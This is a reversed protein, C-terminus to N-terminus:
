KGFIENVADMFEQNNIMRALLKIMKLEAETHETGLFQGFIEAIEDEASKPPFMEGEGTKLWQLDIGYETSLSHLLVDPVPRIGIEYNSYTTQPVGVSSAMKKQSLGLQERLMKLRENVTNTM